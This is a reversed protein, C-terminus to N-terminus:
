WVRGCGVVKDLGMWFMDLVDVVGAGGEWWGGVVWGGMRGSMRGGM